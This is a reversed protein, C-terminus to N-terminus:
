PGPVTQGKVSASFSILIPRPFDHFINLSKRTDQTLLGNLFESSRLLSEPIKDIKGEHAPDPITSPFLFSTRNGEHGAPDSNPLSIWSIILIM